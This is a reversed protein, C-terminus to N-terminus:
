AVGEGPATAQGAAQVNEAVRGLLESLDKPGQAKGDKSTGTTLGPAKGSMFAVFLLSGGFWLLLIGVALMVARQTGEGTAAPAAGAV